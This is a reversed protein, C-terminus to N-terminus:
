CNHRRRHEKWEALFSELIACELHHEVKLGEVSASAPAEDLGARILRHLIQTLRALSLLISRDLELMESCVPPSAPRSEQPEIGGWDGAIKSIDRACEQRSREIERQAREVIQRAQRTLVQSRAILEESRLRIARSKAILDEIDGLWQAAPVHAPVILDFDSESRPQDAEEFLILPIPSESRTVSNEGAPLSYFGETLIVADAFTGTRLMSRLQIASRCETIRYGASELVPVRHFSDRGFHLISGAM